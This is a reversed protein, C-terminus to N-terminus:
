HGRKLRAFANSQYKARLRHWFVLEALELWQHSLLEVLGLAGAARAQLSPFVVAVTGQRLNITRKGVRLAALVPIYADM